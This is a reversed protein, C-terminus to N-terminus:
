ANQQAEDSSPSGGKLAIALLVEAISKLTPSIAEVRLSSNSKMVRARKAREM